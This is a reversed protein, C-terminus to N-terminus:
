MLPPESYLVATCSFTYFFSSTFSTGSCHVPRYYRVITLLESQLFKLDSTMTLGKLYYIYSQPLTLHNAMIGRNILDDFIRGILPSTHIEHFMATNESHCLFFIRLTLPKQTRVFFSVGEEVKLSLPYSSSITLPSPSKRPINPRHLSSPSRPLLSDSMFVLLHSFSTGSM